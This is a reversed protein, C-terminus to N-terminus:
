GIRQMIARAYAISSPPLCGNEVSGPGANYAVLTLKMNHFRSWLQKLYRAGGLINQRANWPNVHLISRATSPMLQMPGIAGASSVLRGADPAHRSEQYLVSAILRKPVGTERSALKVEQAFGGAWHKWSSLMLQHGIPTLSYSMSTVPISRRVHWIDRYSLWALRSPLVGGTKMTYLVQYRQLSERLSSLKGIIQLHISSWNEMQFHRLQSSFQTPIVSTAILSQTKPIKKLIRFGHDSANSELLVSPFLVSLM